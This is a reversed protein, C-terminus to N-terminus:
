RFAGLTMEVRWQHAPAHYDVGRSGSSWLLLNGRAVTWQKWAGRKHTKTHLINLKKAVPATHSLAIRLGQVPLTHPRGALATHTTQSDQPNTETNILLYKKLVWDLVYTMNDPCICPPLSTRKDSSRHIHLIYTFAWVTFSPTSFQILINFQLQNTQVLTWPRGPTHADAQLLQSHSTSIYDTPSHISLPLCAILMCHKFFRGKM